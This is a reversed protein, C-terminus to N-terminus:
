KAAREEGRVDGKISIVESLNLSENTGRRIHASMKLLRLVTSASHVKGAGDIWPKLYAYERFVNCSIRLILHHEVASNEMLEM